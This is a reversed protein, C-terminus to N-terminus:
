GHELRYGIGRVTTVYPPPEAPEGLKERLRMIAMDVLRSDGLYDYGWVRDLLVQRTLAADVHRVLEALLRFETTTLRLEEDGRFARFAVEDVHIDRATLAGREGDAVEGLARRLVARVRAALEVPQFPKTIYDDAGLELGTVVDATDARATLIVIPVNSTRRVERCVDLGSLVPLMLDLLVLDPPNAGTAEAIAAHGDGVAHVALGARELVLTAVERVSADDEVLLVRPRTVATAM